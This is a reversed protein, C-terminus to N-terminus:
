IEKLNESLGKEGGSIRFSWALSGNLAYILNSCVMGPEYHASFANKLRKQWAM